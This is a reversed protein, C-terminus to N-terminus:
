CQAVSFIMKTENRYLRPISLKVWSPTFPSATNRNKAKVVTHLPRFGASGLLRNLSNCTFFFDFSLLEPKSFLLHDALLNTMFLYGGPRLLAHFRELARWPHPMCGLTDFCTVVQFYRQPLEVSWVDGLHFRSEPFRTKGYEVMPEALDVGWPEWGAQRAQDLFFGAACGVDLLPGPTPVHRRIWALLKRAVQRRWSEGQSYHRLFKESNGWFERRHREALPTTATILGCQNCFALPRQPDASPKLVTQGQCMPCHFSGEPM